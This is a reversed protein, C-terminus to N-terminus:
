KGCVNRQILIMIILTSYYKQKELYKGTIGKGNKWTELLRQVQGIRKREFIGFPATRQLCILLQMFVYNDPLSYILTFPFTLIIM